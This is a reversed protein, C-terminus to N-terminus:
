ITSQKTGNLVPFKMIRRIWIIKYLGFVEFLCCFKDAISVVYSERYRPFRLTLPWMHKKIIDQEMHSLNFYINANKLAEAPHTLGHFKGKYENKHWDSLFLDHLLGGRAASYYNLGLFKCIIFSIYSVFLCHELTTVISHQTFNNMTQVVPTEILDDICDKFLEFDNVLRM